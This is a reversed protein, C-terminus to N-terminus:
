VPLSIPLPHEYFTVVDGTDNTFSSPSIKLLRIFVLLDGTAGGTNLAVLFIIMLLWNVPALLMFLFGVVGIVVLPGLAVFAYQRSPIYWTPAGAYAYLLHLAFVPRSRTFVWFFFGHILEHTILIVVVLGLLILMSGVTISGSINKTDSRFMGGFISLVFFSIIFVFFAAINLLITLRKNKKLNIEGSQAYGEPLTKTSINM